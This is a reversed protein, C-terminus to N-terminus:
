QNKSHWLGRFWKKARKIKEAVYCCAIITGSALLFLGIVLIIAITGLDCHIMFMKM